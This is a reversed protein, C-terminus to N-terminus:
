NVPVSSLERGSITETGLERTVVERPVSEWSEHIIEFGGVPTRRVYLFKEGYDEHKDSRYHQLARVIINGNQEFVFPQSLNVQVVDYKENLGKKYRRWTDKDMRMAKFDNAYYSMYTDLDKSQWATQWANLFKNIRQVEKKRDKESVLNMEDYILIPTRGLVINESVNLINENRLVVCGESGRSLPTTDPVAHLWIGYGTKGIRKDFLNPYDMTFIREGYREYNVDHGNKQEQFFYIGEPTKNDGQVMKNGDVKGQDNEFEKIKKFPVTNTDWVSLKRKSKDVTFVYPPYYSSGEASSWLGAPVEGALSWGSFLM